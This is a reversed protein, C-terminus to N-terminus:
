ESSRDNKPQSIVLWYIVLFTLKLEMVLLSTKIFYNLELASTQAFVLIGLAVFPLLHWKKKKSAFPLDISKKM